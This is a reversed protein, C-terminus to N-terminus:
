KNQKKNTYYVSLDVITGLLMGITMGMALNSFLVGLSIGGSIGILMYFAKYETHNNKKVM